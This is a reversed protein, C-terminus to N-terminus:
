TSVKQVKVAWPAVLQGGVRRRALLLTLNTEAYLENLRQVSFGVRDAILYSSLDGFIIPYANTSVDPVFEDVMVPKGKITDFQPNALSSNVLSTIIYRNQGDKLQEVVKMTASNMVFVANRRYQAPLGYYLSIIGDATLTATTGSVVSAPGTAAADDVAALIGQPQSTGSTGSGTPGNIFVDDEGLAFSEAFLDSALGLLDFSADEILDNSIPMSAMATRVPISILGFTPDTVRATTASAPSEGTWTMKVPSTYKNDTTYNIRPWTAIDRSVQVVRALPRIATLGAIKKILEAHFDPGVLFGGATDTGETLTKRDEPGLDAFGKRLYAEFAPGYGKRDVVAPVNYRITHERGYADFGKVERWAKKDVQAEGEGPAAERWQTGRAALPAEAPENMFEKGKEVRELETAQAVLIDYQGMKQSIQEIIPKAKEVDAEEGSPLQAQLTKAEALFRNAQLYLDKSSPAAM